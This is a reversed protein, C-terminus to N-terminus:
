AKTTKLGQEVAKLWRELRNFDVSGGGYKCREREAELAQRSPLPDHGKPLVEKLRIFCSLLRDADADQLASRATEILSSAPPPAREKRRPTEPDSGSTWKRRLVFILSALLFLILLSGVVWSRPGGSVVMVEPPELDFDHSRDDSTQEDMDRWSIRISAPSSTGAHLAELAYIWRYVTEEDAHVYNQQVGGQKFDEGLEIRPPYFVYRNPRGIWRAELVLPCPAGTTCRETQFRASFAPQAKLSSHSSAAIGLAIVLPLVRVFFFPSPIGSEM